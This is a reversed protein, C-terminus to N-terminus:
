HNLFKRASKLYDSQIGKVIDPLILLIGTDLLKLM